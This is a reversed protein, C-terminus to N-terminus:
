EKCGTGAALGTCGELLYLSEVERAVFEKRKMSVKTFAALEHIPPKIPNGQMACRPPPKTHTEKPPRMAPIKAQMGFLRKM